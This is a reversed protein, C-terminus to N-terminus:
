RSFWTTSHALFSFDMCFHDYLAIAFAHMSVTFRHAQGSCVSDIIEKKRLNSRSSRSRWSFKQDKDWKLIPDNLEAGFILLESVWSSLMSIGFSTEVGNSKIFWQLNIRPSWRGASNFRDNRIGDSRPALSSIVSPNCTNCNFETDFLSNSTATKSPLLCNVLKQCKIEAQLGGTEEGFCRLTKWHFIKDCHKYKLVRTPKFPNKVTEKIVASPWFLSPKTHQGSSASVQSDRLYKITWSIMWFSGSTM